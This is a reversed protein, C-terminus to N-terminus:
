RGAKLQDLQEIQDPTAFSLTKKNYWGAATHIWDEIVIEQAKGAGRLEPVTERYLERGAERGEILVKEEARKEIKKEIKEAQAEGKATDPKGIKVWSKDM